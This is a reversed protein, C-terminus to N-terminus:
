SRRQRYEAILVDVLGIMDTLRDQVQVLRKELDDLVQDQGHETKSSEKVIIWKNDHIMNWQLGLLKAPFLMGRSRYYLIGEEDEWLNFSEDDSRGAIAGNRIQPLVSELRM